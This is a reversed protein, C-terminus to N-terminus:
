SSGSSSGGSNGSNSSSDSAGTGADELQQTPRFVIGSWANQMDHEVVFGATADVIDANIRRDSRYQFGVIEASLPSYVAVRCVDGHRHAPLFGHLGGAMPEIIPLPIRPPWRESAVAADRQSFEYQEATTDGPTTEDGDPEGFLFGYEKILDMRDSDNAITPYDTSLTGANYSEWQKRLEERKTEDALIPAMDDSVLQDRESVWGDRDKDATDRAQARKFAIYKLVETRSASKSKRDALETETLESDKKGSYPDDYDGAFYKKEQEDMTTTETTFKTTEDSTFDDLTLRENRDADAVSLLIADAGVPTPVFPFSVPVRGLRDRSLPELYLRDSGGDVKASVYRPPKPGPRPPHWSDKDRSPYITMTNDYVGGKCIHLVRAVQWNAIQYLAPTLEIRRGPRLGPQRSAATISLEESRAGSRWLYARMYAEEIGVDSGYELSGIAGNAGFQRFSGLAPDDLVAGRIPAVPSGSIGSVYIPSSGETPTTGTDLLAMELPEGRPPRDTLTVSVGGASTSQMEVRLGVLGLFEELWEGLAQGAAVTYPILKLGDRYNEVIEVQHMYPLHPRLGPKGNGGAALSLVGGIVEGASEGRYAGWIPRQAMYSVPDSLHIVCHARTLDTAKQTPTVAGVICPWTRVVAGDLGTKSGDIYLAQRLLVARGPLVDAAFVAGLMEGISITEGTKAAASMVAYGRWGSNYQETLSIGTVNVQTPTEPKPIELYLRYQTSTSSSTNSNDDAM